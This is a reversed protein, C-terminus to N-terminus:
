VIGIGQQLEVFPLGSWHPIVGAQWCARTDTFIEQMVGAIVTRLVDSGGVNAGGDRWLTELMLILQFFNKQLLKNTPHDPEDRGTHIDPLGKNKIKIFRGFHSYRNHPDSKEPDSVFRYYPPIPFNKETWPPPALNESFIHGEGQNVIAQVADRATRPSDIIQCFTQKGWPNQQYETNWSFQGAGVRNIGVILADYMEGISHYPYQPQTHNIDKRLQAQEPIEIDLMTDLTADDLPGLAANLFGCEGTEPNYPCIYPIDSGYQPAKFNPATDLALCLNAALQLHLMEEMIVSRLIEVAECQEERVSCMATIYFPLTYFEVAVAAQAHAQVLKKTWTKATGSEKM